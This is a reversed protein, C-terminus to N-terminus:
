NLDVQTIEFEYRCTSKDKSKKLIWSDNNYVSKGQDSQYYTKRVKGDSNISVSDSSIYVYSKNMCRSGFECFISYSYSFGKFLPITKTSDADHFALEIDKDSHNTIIHEPCVRRDCGILLICACSICTRKKFLTLFLKSYNMIKM